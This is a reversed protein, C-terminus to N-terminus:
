YNKEYMAFFKEMGEDERARKAERDWYELLQWSAAVLGLAGAALQWGTGLLMQTLTSFLTIITATLAIGKVLGEPHHHRHTTTTM